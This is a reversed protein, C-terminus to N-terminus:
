GIATSLKTAVPTNSRRQATYIPTKIQLEVQGGFQRDAVQGLSHLLKQREEAKLRSIPSFTSYLRTLRATDYRVTWSITDFQINEFANVAELNAIRSKADLAFPPSGDLSWSPGRDLNDFLTRTAKHFEDTRSGDFLLNWWMAWWGGERLADAIKRLSTMEDLWHFASASTGLDFWAAPLVAHEFTSVQVNLAAATSGLTRMLFDALREDPEVAVLATSGHEILKRTSLGTGPGVEFIRSGPRLGCRKVLIEFVEEPYSPRTDQYRDPDSGFARRGEARDIATM